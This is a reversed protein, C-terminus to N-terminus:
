PECVYPYSLVCSRDGWTGDTLIAGCDANDIVGYLNDPQGVLWDSYRGGVAAGDAAGSWFATGDSWRWDGEGELDNAGTWSDDAIAGAVAANEAADDIRVLHLNVAECVAKAVDWDLADSCRYYTRADHMFAECDAGPSVACAGCQACEVLPMPSLVGPPACSDGGRIRVRGLGGGGGGGGYGYFSGTGGDGGGQAQTGRVAGDGGGGAASTPVGGTAAAASARGDEGSAGTTATSPQGAGGAGGNASIVATTGLEIATAELVISGGSGGGGGGDRAAVGPAGGGGAANITGGIQLEGAVSIQVAGGGAGGPVSAGGGDGGSCGGRLPELEASGNVGGGTVEAGASSGSASDGGQGGDGGTSGYGGGSGGGAGTSSGSGAGDIGEGGDCARDAGPGPASARASADVVGDISARDFVAVIVPLEGRLELTSGDAITLTEMVLVIASTGGIQEILV